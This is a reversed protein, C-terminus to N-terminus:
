MLPKLFRSPLAKKGKYKSICSIQLFSKARTMAVYLIRREEELAAQSSSNRGPILADICSPIFVAEWELGKSAHITMVNVGGEPAGEKQSGTESKKLTEDAMTLWEKLSGYKAAEEELLDLIEYYQGPEAGNEKAYALLFSDYGIAKRIYKVAAFPCLGSLTKLDEEFKRIIQTMKPNERYFRKLSYFPSQDPWLAQRLIHRAPRNMILLIDSLSCEPFSLAARIYSLIDCSIFHGYLFCSGKKGYTGAKAENHRRFIYETDANNRFLVAIENLPIGKKTLEKIKKIIEDAEAKADEFGCIFVGTGAEEKFPRIKKKFRNENENIVCAAASIIEPTSRYNIDLLIQEAGKFDKLFRKMLGPRAGRFAYISQDDDGVIFINQEKGSLLRVTEYQLLNIDQFEDILIYRYRDQWKKLLSPDSLLLKFCKLLMDDFDILANAALYNEYKRYLFRFIDGSLARSEYGNIDLCNGKVLSIEDAAAKFLLGDYEIDANVSELASRLFEAKKAQGIVKLSVNSSQRIISYFVSHFTGFVPLQSCAGSELIFRDEMEKAAKKSFTMVLINEPAIGEKFILNKLRGSIVATKGSGPGALVMVPGDKRSVAELQARNFDVKFSQQNSNSYDPNKM